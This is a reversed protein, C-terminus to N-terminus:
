HPAIAEPVLVATRSLVVTRPAGQSHMAVRAAARNPPRAYLCLRRPAVPVLQASSMEHFTDTPAWGCTRLGGVRTTLGWGPRALRGFARQFLLKHATADYLYRLATDATSSNGGHANEGSACRRRVRLAGSGQGIRRATSRRLHMGLAPNPCFGPLPARILRNRTQPLSGAPSESGPPRAPLKKRGGVVEVHLLPASPAEFAAGM